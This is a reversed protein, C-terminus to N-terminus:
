NGNNINNNGLISFSTSSSPWPYVGSDINENKLINKYWLYIMAKNYFIYNKNSLASQSRMNIGLEIQANTDLEKIALGM